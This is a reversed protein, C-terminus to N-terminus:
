GLSYNLVDDDYAICTTRTSFRLYRYKRRACICLRGREGSSSFLGSIYMFLLYDDANIRGGVIRHVTSPIRHGPRRHFYVRFSEGTRDRRVPAIIIIDYRRIRNKGVAADGVRNVYVINYYYRRGGGSVVVM